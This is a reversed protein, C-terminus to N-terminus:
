PHKNTIHNFSSEKYPFPVTRLDHQVLEGTFGKLKCVGLMAQSYDFGSIRLGAKHFLLSGLGTGIGIDLLTENSTVFEYMLGFAIEHGHFGSSIFWSWSRYPATM